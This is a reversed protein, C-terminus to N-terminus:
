SRAHVWDGFSTPRFSGQGDWAKIEEAVHKAYLKKEEDSAVNPQCHPNAPAFHKAGASRSWEIFEGVKIPGRCENCTGERKSQMVNAM